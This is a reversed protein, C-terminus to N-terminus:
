SKVKKKALTNLRRHEDYQWYKYINTIHEELKMRMAPTINLEAIVEGNLELKDGVINLM